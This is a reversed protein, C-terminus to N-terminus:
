TGPKLANFQFNFLNILIPLILIASVAENKTARLFLWHWYVQLGRFGICYWTELCKLSFLFLRNSNIFDHHRGYCRKQDYMASLLELYYFLLDFFILLKRATM